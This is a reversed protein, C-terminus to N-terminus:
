LYAGESTLPADCQFPFIGRGRALGKFVAAKGGVAVLEISCFHHQGDAVKAGM